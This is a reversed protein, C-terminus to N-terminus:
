QWVLVTIKTEIGYIVISKGSSPFSSVNMAIAISGNPSEIVSLGADLGTFLAMGREHGTSFKRSFVGTGLRASAFFRGLALGAVASVGSFQLSYGSAIGPMSVFDMEAGIWRDDGLRIGPSFENVGIVDSAVTGSPVGIGARVTIGIPNLTTLLLLLSFM